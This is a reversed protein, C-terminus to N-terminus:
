RKIPDAQLTVPYVYIEADMGDLIPRHCVILANSAIHAMSVLSVFGLKQEIVTDHRTASEPDISSLITAIQSACAHESSRRTLTM